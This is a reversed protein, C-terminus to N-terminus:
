AAGALRQDHLGISAALEEYRGAMELHAERAPESAARQAAAREQDARRRFYTADGEMRM